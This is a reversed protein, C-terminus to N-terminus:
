VHARGIQRMTMNLSINDLGKGAASADIVPTLLSAAVNPDPKRLSIRKNEPEVTKFGRGKNYGKIFRAYTTLLHDPYKVIAQDFADNGNKLHESDSGLLNLLTGQEDGFFLSAVDEDEVSKPSRVNVKLINSVIASGDLAFYVGRLQYFGPQSFYFGDSGYGVYASDYIKPNEENLTVMNPVACHELMPKYRKIQGSPSRIGLAVLGMKPHLLPHVNKGRADTTSLKLEVVVPEGYEFAPKPSELELQLGSKDEVNAAFATSDSPTESDAGISFDNGGMIVSNRLGHRIHITELDDFQFAFANWYAAAGGPYKWDYNMWSLDGPVDVGPPNALSKQWSHM